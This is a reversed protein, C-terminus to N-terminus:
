PRPGSPRAACGPCTHLTDHILEDCHACFVEGCTPCRLGSAGGGVALPLAAACGFCTGKDAALETHAAFAPLPFLHHYSRVLDAASVLKLNCIPCQTPLEAHSAGCQPCGYRGDGPTLRAGGGPVFCLTPASGGARRTPFGIRVLSASAGVTGEKVGETPPPPVRRALLDRLHDPGLAVGFEGGTARALEKLVYVEAVLSVVTCRVKKAALGGITAHIDGPDCTSLSASLLVLERSVFSGTAQLQDKALDLANQLSAEGACYRENLTRLKELHTRANSSLPALSDAVGNKMCVLALTSIPNQEFFATIFHAAEAKMVELCSPRMEGTEPEAARRSCDLVLFVTRVMGRRVGAGALPATHGRRPAEAASRLSGDPAERVSEWSREFTEWSYAAPPADDVEM